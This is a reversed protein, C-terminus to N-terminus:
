PIIQITDKIATPNCKAIFFLKSDLEYLRGNNYLFGSRNGREDVLIYIVTDPKDTTLAVISYPSPAIERGDALKQKAPVMRYHYSKSLKVPVSTNKDIILDFDDNSRMNAENCKGSKSNVKFKSKFSLINTSIKVSGADILDKYRSYYKGMDTSLFAAYQREQEEKEAM